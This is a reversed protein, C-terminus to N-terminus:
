KLWTRTNSKKLSNKHDFTKLINDINKNLDNYAIEIENVWNRYSEIQKLYESKTQQHKFFNRFITLTM